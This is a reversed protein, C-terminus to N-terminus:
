LLEKHIQIPVRAKMSERYAMLARQQKQFLFDQLIRESASPGADPQAETQRATLSQAEAIEAPTLAVSDRVVTMAKQSLLEVAYLSEFLSPTLRNAALVRRYLEPDFKGNRQFDKRQLISDRLEDPSVTLGMDKAALLWIKNEILGDIVFQKLTEEKFDGQVNEKYFRYTSEFSRRYEDRTIAMDGVSAVANSEQEEFGWWGMTIVFAVALAGMISKLLWPYKHASDRMLKIM